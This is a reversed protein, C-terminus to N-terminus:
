FKFRKKYNVILDYMSYSEFTMKGDIAANLLDIGYDFYFARQGMEKNLDYSVPCKQKAKCMYYNDEKSYIYFEKCKYDVKVIPRYGKLALHKINSFDNYAFENGFAVRGWATGAMARYIGTKKENNMMEDSTQLIRIFIGRDELYTVERKNISMEAIIDTVELVECTYNFINVANAFCLLKLEERGRLTRDRSVTKYLELVAEGETRMTREWPQPIFEDFIIDACESLDFGKYKHISSLSILFGKPAGYAGGDEDTDYFAGLGDDIKFAKIKTGMDRNLSKYPSLDVDYDPTKEGLKNGACLLDVDKNTRKVFVHSLKHTMNYKLGGYTKGTNRGGVVIYCWADPYANIDDEINYYIKKTM